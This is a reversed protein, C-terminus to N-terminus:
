SSGKPDAGHYERRSIFASNAEYGPNLFAQRAGRQAACHHYLATGLFLPWALLCEAIAHQLNERPKGHLQSLHRAPLLGPVVDWGARTPLSSVPHSCFEADEALFSPLWAPAARCIGYPRRHHAWSPTSILALFHHWVRFCCPSPEPSAPPYLLADRCLGSGADEWPLGECRGMGARGWRQAKGRCREGGKGEEGLLGQEIKQVPFMFHLSCSLFVNPKFHSLFLVARCQPARAGEPAECVMSPRHELVLLGWGSRM